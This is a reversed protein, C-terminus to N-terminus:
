RAHKVAFEFIAWAVGGVASLAVAAAGLFKLVNYARAFRKKWAEQEQQRFTEAEVLARTGADIREVLAKTKDITTTQEALVRNQGDLVANQDNTSKQLKGIERTVVGRLDDHKEKADVAIGHTQQLQREARDLRANTAVQDEVVKTLRANMAGVQESLIASKEAQDRAAQQSTTMHQTLLAELRALGESMKPEM